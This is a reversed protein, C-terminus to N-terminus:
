FKVQEFVDFSLNFNFENLDPEWCTQDDFNLFEEEEYEIDSLNPVPSQSLIEDESSCVFPSPSNEIPIFTPPSSSRNNSSNNSSLQHDYSQHNYSSYYPMNYNWNYSSIPYYNSFYNSNSNNIHSPPCYCPGARPQQQQQQVLHILPRVFNNQSRSRSYQQSQQQQSQQQSQPQSSNQQPEEKPVPIEFIPFKTSTTQNIILTSKKCVPAQTSEESDPAKRKSSTRKASSDSPTENQKKSDSNNTSSSNNVNSEKKSVRKKRGSLHQQVEKLGARRIIPTEESGIKWQTIWFENPAGIANAQSSLM